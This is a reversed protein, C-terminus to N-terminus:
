VICGTTLGTQCGATDHLCVDLRNDFQNDFPNSLRNYLGTQCGHQVFLKQVTYVPSLPRNPIFPLKHLGSARDTVWGGTDSRQRSIHLWACVRYAAGKKSTWPIHMPHLSTVCRHDCHSRWKTSWCTTSHTTLHHLNTANNSDFQILHNLFIDM